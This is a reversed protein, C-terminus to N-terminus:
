TGSEIGTRTRKASGAPGAPLRPWWLCPYIGPPVIRKYIERTRVPRSLNRGGTDDKVVVFEEEAEGMTIILDLSNKQQEDEVNASRRPISDSHSPKSLCRFSPGFCTM